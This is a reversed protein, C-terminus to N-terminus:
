FKNHNNKNCEICLMQFYCGFKHSKKLYCHNEIQLWVKIIFFKADTHHFVILKQLNVKTVEKYHLLLIVKIYIHNNQIYKSILYRVVNRNWHGIKTFNKKPVTFDQLFAIKISDINWETEKKCKKISMIKYVAVKLTLSIYYHFFTM